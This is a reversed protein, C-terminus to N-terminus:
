HLKGIKYIQMSSSGGMGNDECDTSIGNQQFIHEADASSHCTTGESLAFIQHGLSKSILYCKKLLQNTVNEPSTSALLQHDVKAIGNGNWCGLNDIEPGVYM